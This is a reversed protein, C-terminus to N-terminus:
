VTMIKQLDKQLILDKIQNEIAKPSDGGYILVGKEINLEMAIDTLNASTQFLINGDAPAVKAHLSGFM